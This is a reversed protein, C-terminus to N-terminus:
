EQVSEAVCLAMKLDTSGWTIRSCLVARFSENLEMCEPSSDLIEFM